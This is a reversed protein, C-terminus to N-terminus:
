KILPITKQPIVTQVVKDSSTGWKIFTEVGFYYIKGNELGRLIIKTDRVPVKRMKFRKGDTSNFIFYADAGKVAEWSLYACGDGPKIKFNSPAAAKGKYYYGPPHSLTKLKGEKELDKVRRNEEEAMQEPGANEEDYTPTPAVLTETSSSIQSVVPCNISIAFLLFIGVGIGSITKRSHFYKKTLAKLNRM